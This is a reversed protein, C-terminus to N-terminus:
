FYPVATLADSYEDSVKALIRKTLREEKALSFACEYLERGNMGVLNYIAPDIENLMASGWVGMRHEWYFIDSPEFCFKEIGEYNARYRYQEFADEVFKIYEANPNVNKISSGYAKTMASATFDQMPIKSLNYFGRIIEGGYGRVFVGNMPKYHAHMLAALRSKGRYGGSNIGAFEAVEKQFGGQMDMFNHSIGLIDVIQNISDIEKEKIYNGTWTVGSFPLGYKFMAAFVARTDIGGTIGVVVFRGVLNEILGKIHSDYSHFLDAYSGTRRPRVPWYRVCKSSNLKLFNNPILSRVGEWLSLDGPLYKVTRANYEPCSMFEIIKKDKSIGLMEAILGAHSAVFGPSKESYFISRSGFADHYVSVDGSKEISFLAFRGSVQTLFDGCKLTSSSSLDDILANVERGSVSYITGVVVISRLTGVASTVEVEPHVHVTLQDFRQKKWGNLSDYHSLMPINEIHAFFGFRYKLMSSFDM